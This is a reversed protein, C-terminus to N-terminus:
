VVANPLENDPSSSAPFVRAVETALIEVVQCLGNAANGDKISQIVQDVYRQWGQTGVHQHIGQDALIEIRREWESVLILIGTRNRTQFVGREVFIAQAHRHVEVKKEDAPVLAVLVRQYGLVFWLVIILVAQVLMMAFEPAAPAALPVLASLACSVVLAFLLRWFRYTGSRPVVAVLIEAGSQTEVRTITAEIRERDAKTLISNM